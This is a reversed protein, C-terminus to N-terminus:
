IWNTPLTKVLGGAPDSVVNLAPHTQLFTLLSPVTGFNIGDETFNGGSWFPENRQWIMYNIKLLDRQRALIVSYPPIDYLAAKNSRADIGTTAKYDDGQAECTLIINNQYTPNQYYVLIGPNGSPDNLGNSENGNPTNIGVKMGPLMPFVSAMFPRTYNGGFCVPTKPFVTKMSKIMSDGSAFAKIIGNQFMALSGGNYNGLYANRIASELTSVTILYDGDDLSKGDTGPVVHNAFEQLFTKLRTQVTADWLQLYYGNHAGTTPSGNTFSWTKSILDPPLIELKDATTTGDARYNWAILLRASKSPTEQKLAYLMQVLANVVSWNWNSVGTTVNEINGWSLVFKIGRLCFTNRLEAKITNIMSTNLSGDGNLVQWQELKIYHGPYWKGGTVPPPLSTIKAKTSDGRSFLSFAM